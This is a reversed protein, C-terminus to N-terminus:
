PPKGDVISGATFITPALRQEGQAIADRTGIVSPHGWLVRITTVGFTAFLALQLPDYTHVHMDALGPILWKGRADLELAGPAKTTASPGIAAIRGDRIVVTHDPLVGPRDMPVVTVGVFAIEGTPAPSIHRDPTGSCAVLCALALRM